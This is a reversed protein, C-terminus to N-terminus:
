LYAYNERSSGLGPSFLIVPCPASIVKPIFIKVPLDRARADDHWTFRVIEILNTGPAPQFSGAWGPMALVLLLTIGNIRM